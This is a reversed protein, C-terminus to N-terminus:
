RPYGATIPKRRDKTAHVLAPRPVANRGLHFPAVMLVGAAGLRRALRNAVAGSRMARIASFLEGNM